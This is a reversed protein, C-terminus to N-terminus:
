RHPPAHTASWASVTALLAVAALGATVVAYAHTAQAPGAHAIGLYAAGFAAVGVAGGIQTTTTVGSIDPAHEAGVASTLHAILASFQIGLGFGGARLLAALLAEEQHGTVLALSIGAYAAALLLCGLAPTSTAAAAPLRRVLQGALGFAAVWPVLM